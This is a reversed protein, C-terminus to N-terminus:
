RIMLTPFKEQAKRVKGSVVARCYGATPNKEFYRQHYDEAPWFKPAHVVETVIPSEYRPQIEKIYAEAVAKQEPTTYYVGSRYQTGADNGQRNLTTPDHVTFFIELIKKYDLTSPDFTVEVAEAHGSDGECVEEYTPHESKGNIYGSVASHVGSMRSFVGEICWFCGGAVIARESGAPAEAAAAMAEKYTHAGRSQALGMLVVSTRLAQPFTRARLNFRALSVSLAAM